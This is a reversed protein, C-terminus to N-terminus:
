LSVTKTDKKKSVGPNGVTVCCEETSYLVNTGSGIINYSSITVGDKITSNIGIFTNNLVKSFGGFAVRLSIFCYDFVETNHSLTCGEYLIVGSHIKSGHGIFVSDAVFINDGVFVADWAISNPSIYNVLGYGDERVKNCVRERNISCHAYGIAVFFMYNTVYYMSRCADYTIIPLGCFESSGAENDDVFAVIQYLGDRKNYEFIKEALAGTGYILIKEHM